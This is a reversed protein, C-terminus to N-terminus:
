LKLGRRISAVYGKSRLVRRILLQKGMEIQLKKDELIILLDVLLIGM